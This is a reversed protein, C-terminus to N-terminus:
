TSRNRYSASRWLPDHRELEAAAVESLAAFRTAMCRPGLAVQEAARREEDSMPRRPRPLPTREYNPVRDVCGDCIALTKAGAWRVVTPVARNLLQPRGRNPLARSAWTTFTTYSTGVAHDAAGLM